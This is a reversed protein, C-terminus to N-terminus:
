NHNLGWFARAVSELDLRTNNTVLLMRININNAVFM